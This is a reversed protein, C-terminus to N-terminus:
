PDERRLEGGPLLFPVLGPWYHLELQRHVKIGIWYQADPAVLAQVPLFPVGHWYTHQTHQLTEVVEEYEWVSGPRKRKFVPVVWVSHETEVLDGHRPGGMLMLKM